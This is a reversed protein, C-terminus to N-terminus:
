VWGLSVLCGGYATGFGVCGVGREDSLDNSQLWACRVGLGGFKRTACVEVQGSLYQCTRGMVHNM